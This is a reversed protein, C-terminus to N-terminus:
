VQMFYLDGEELLKERILRQELQLVSHLYSPIMRGVYKYNKQPFVFVTFFVFFVAPKAELAKVYVTFFNFCDGVDVGFDFANPIGNGGFAFYLFSCFHGFSFKFFITRFAFVAFM